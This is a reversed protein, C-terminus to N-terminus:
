HNINAKDLFRQYLKEDLPVLDKGNGGVAILVAKSGNTDYLRVEDFEKAIQPLIESVKAHLNRIRDEPVYRKEERARNVCRQVATETDCTVYIGNVKMGLARAEKISARMDEVSGDGTGDLMANFGKEQAIKLARYAICSSEEHVANAADKNGQEILNKYEPISSKINDSDIVVTEKVNPTDVSPDRTVTSKGSGSGGGLFTMTREGDSPKKGDFIDKIIDRHMKERSGKLKGTKSDVNKYLTGNKNSIRSLDAEGYDGGIYDKPMSGGRQGPRGAHNPFSDGRTRMIRYDNYAGYGYDMIESGKCCFSRVSIDAGTVIM